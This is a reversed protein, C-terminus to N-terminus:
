DGSSGVKECLLWFGEQTHQYEVLQGFTRADADDDCTSIDVSVHVDCDEQALLYKALEHSKMM